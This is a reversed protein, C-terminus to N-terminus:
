LPSHIPSPTPKPTPRFAPVRGIAPAPPAQIGNNSKSKEDAGRARPKERTAAETEVEPFRRPEPLVSYEDPSSALRTPNPVPDSSQNSPTEATNFSLTLARSLQSVDFGQLAASEGALNPPVDSAIDRSEDKLQPHKLLSDEHLSLSAGAAVAIGIGFASAPRLWRQLWGAFIREEKM